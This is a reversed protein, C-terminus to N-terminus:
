FTRPQTGLFKQSKLYLLNYRRPIKDKKSIVFYTLRVDVKYEAFIEMRCDTHCIHM